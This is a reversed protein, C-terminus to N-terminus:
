KRGPRRPQRCAQRGTGRWGSRCCQRCCCRSMGLTRRRIGASKWGYRGPLRDATGRSVVHVALGRAMLRQGVAIVTPTKGAGGAGLNGICIVPVGARYGPRRLRRATAFGYIWGLPTLLRAVLGPRNRPTFWFGPTRM